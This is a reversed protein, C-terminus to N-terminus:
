ADARLLLGFVASAGNQLVSELTTEQALTNWAPIGMFDGM